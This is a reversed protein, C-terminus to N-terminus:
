QSRRSGKLPQGRLRSRRDLRVAPSISWAMCESTVDTTVLLVRWDSKGAEPELRDADGPRLGLQWLNTVWCLLKDVCRKCMAPDFAKM